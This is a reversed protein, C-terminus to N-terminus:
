LYHLVFTDSNAPTLDFECSVSCWQWLSVERLLPVSFRCDFWMKNTVHKTFLLHLCCFVDNKGGLLASNLIYLFLSVLFFYVTFLSYCYCAIYLSYSLRTSACPYSTISTAIYMYQLYHYLSSAVPYVISLEYGILCLLLESLGASPFLLVTQCLVCM